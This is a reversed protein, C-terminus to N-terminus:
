GNRVKAKWWRIAPALHTASTSEDEGALWPGIGGMRSERTVWLMERSREDEWFFQVLTKM